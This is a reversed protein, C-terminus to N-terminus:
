GEKPAFIDDISVNQEDAAGSEVRDNPQAEPPASENAADNTAETKGFFTDRYRQGWEENNRDLAEQVANQVEKQDQPGEGETNSADFSKIGEIFDPTFTEEPLQEKLFEILKDM